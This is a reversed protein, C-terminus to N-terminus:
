SAVGIARSAPAPADSRDPHTGRCVRCLPRVADPQHAGSEQYPHSDYVVAEVVVARNHSVTERTFCTHPVGNPYAQWLVSARFAIRRTPADSCGAEHVVHAPLYHRMTMMM